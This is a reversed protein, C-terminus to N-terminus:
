NKLTLWAIVGLAIMTIIWYVFMIPDFVIRKDYYGVPLFQIWSNKNNLVFKWYDKKVEKLHKGKLDIEIDTLNFKNSHEKEHKIIAKYLRPYNEKIKKNVYITDGIRSAIGFDILKIKLKINHYKEKKSIAKHM